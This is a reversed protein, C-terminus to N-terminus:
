PANTDGAHLTLGALEAASLTISGATITLTDHNSDTLTADAPLGTIKVTVTDGANIPTEGIGLAVTGDESVTLTPSAITLAPAEPTVTLAITQPASTATGNSATVTLTANTDGAHLTLGALEAASLTISGRSTLTDHNSDTLTADASARYDQRLRTAPM